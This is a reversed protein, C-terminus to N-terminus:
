VIMCHFLIDYYNEHRHHGEERHRGIGLGHNSAFLIARLRAIRAVVTGGNHPYGGTQGAVGGGLPGGGCTAVKCAVIDCPQLSTGITDRHLCGCTVLNDVLIHHNNFAILLAADM